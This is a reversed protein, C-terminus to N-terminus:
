STAPRVPYREGKQNILVLREGAMVYLDCRGFGNPYTVCVSGDDQVAFRGYATGGGNKESYTYTYRGDSFYRSQGDDYFSLTTDSTLARAEDQTLPLDDARLKWEEAQASSAVLCSLIASLLARKM